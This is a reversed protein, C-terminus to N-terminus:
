QNESDFVVVGPANQFESVLITHGSTTNKPMKKLELTGDFIDPQDTEQWEAAEGEAYPTDKTVLSFNSHVLLCHALLPAGNWVIFRTTEGANDYWLAAVFDPCTEPRLWPAYRTGLTEFYLSMERPDIGNDKMTRIVISKGGAMYTFPFGKKRPRETIDMGMNSRMFSALAAPIKSFGKDYIPRTFSFPVSTAM